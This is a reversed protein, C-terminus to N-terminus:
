RLGVPPGLVERLVFARRLSQPDRLDQLVRVRSASLLGRQSEAERKSEAAVQSARHQVIVRDEQDLPGFNRLRAAIHMEVPRAHVHGLGVLHDIAVQQLQRRHIAEAEDVM